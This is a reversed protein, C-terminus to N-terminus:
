RRYKWGSAFNAPGSAAQIELLHLYWGDFSPNGSFKEFLNVFSILKRGDAKGCVNFLQGVEGEVYHYNSNRHRFHETNCGILKMNQIDLLILDDMLLVRREFRGRGV